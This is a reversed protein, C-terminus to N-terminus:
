TITVEDTLVDEGFNEVYYNLAIESIRQESAGSFTWLYGPVTIEGTYRIDAGHDHQRALDSNDILNGLEMMYQFELSGDIGDVDIDFGFTQEAELIQLWRRNFENADSQLDAWFELTYEAEFANGTVNVGGSGDPDPCIRNNAALPFNRWEPFSNLPERYISIFPLDLEGSPKLVNAQNDEIQRDRRRGIALDVPAFIIDDTGFELLSPFRDVALTRGMYLDLEPIM